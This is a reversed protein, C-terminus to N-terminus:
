SVKKLFIFLYSQFFKEYYKFPKEISLFLVYYYNRKFLGRNYASLYYM